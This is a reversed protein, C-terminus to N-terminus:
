AQSGAKMQTAYCTVAQEQQRQEQQRHMQWGLARARGGYNSTIWGQRSTCSRALRHKLPAAMM